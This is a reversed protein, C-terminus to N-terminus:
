VPGEGDWLTEMRESRMLIFYRGFFEGDARCSWALAAALGLIQGADEAGSPSSPKVLPSLRTQFLLEEGSQHSLDVSCAAIGCSLCRDKLM